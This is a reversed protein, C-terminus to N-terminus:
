AAEGQAERHVVVRRSALPSWECVRKEGSFLGHFDLAPEDSAVGGGRKGDGDDGKPAFLEADRDDDPFQRSAGAGGAFGADRQEGPGSVGVSEVAGQVLEFQGSGGCNSGADVHSEGNGFVAVERHQQTGVLGDEVDGPSAQIDSRFSM